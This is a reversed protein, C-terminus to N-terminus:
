CLNEKGKYAMKRERVEFRVSNLWDEERLLRALKSVYRSKNLAETLNEYAREIRRFATREKLNLVGCLEAMSIKYNMKIYLVKKDKLLEQFNM